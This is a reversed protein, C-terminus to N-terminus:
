PWEDFFKYLAIWYKKKVIFINKVSSCVPGFRPLVICLISQNMCTDILGIM